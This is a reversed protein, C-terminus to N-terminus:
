AAGAGGSARRARRPDLVVLVLPDGVDDLHEEALADAVDRRERRAVLERRRGPGPEVVRRARGVEDRPEHAVDDPAALGGPREEGVPENAGSPM